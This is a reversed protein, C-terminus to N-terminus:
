RTKKRKREPEIIHTKFEYVTLALGIVLLTFVTVALLLLYTDSM